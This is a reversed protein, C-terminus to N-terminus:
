MQACSALLHDPGIGTGDGAEFVVREGSLVDTAAISLRVEGSNLREFDVLEELRSRLPSLDYLGPRGEGSSLPRPRFLGPRGLLLTQMVGAINYGERLLGHAPRGGWFSLAPAPD